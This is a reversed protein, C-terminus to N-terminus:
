DHKKSEPSSSQRAKFSTKWQEIQHALEDMGSSRAVALAKEAMAFAEAPRDTQSYIITLDHYAAFMDPKLRIAEQFQAIADALQHRKTYASGLNYHADYSDPNLRLAESLQGIAADVEGTDLLNQGLNGHLLWSDPNKELASQYIAKANRYQASQQWTLAVFVAVVSAAVALPLVRMLGDTKQLWLWWAAALLALISIIAIHQYHDAVLSFKMFGVDTFGMVPFLAICYVFWALLLSRGKSTQRQWWLLLSFAVAALLPL